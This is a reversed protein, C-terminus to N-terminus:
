TLTATNPSSTIGYTAVAAVPRSLLIVVV